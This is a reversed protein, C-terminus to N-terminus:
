DDNVSISRAQAVAVRRGFLLRLLPAPYLGPAIGLWHSVAASSDRGSLLSGARPSPDLVDFLELRWEKRPVRATTENPLLYDRAPALLFRSDCLLQAHASLWATLSVEVCFVGLYRVLRCVAM